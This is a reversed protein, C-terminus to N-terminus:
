AALSRLHADLRETDDGPEPDLALALILHEAFEEGPIFRHIAARAGTSDRLYATAVGKTPPECEVECQGVRFLVSGGGPMTASVADELSDALRAQVRAILEDVSLTATDGNQYLALTQRHEDAAADLARSVQPGSLGTAEHAYPLLLDTPWRTQPDYDVAGAYAGIGVLM